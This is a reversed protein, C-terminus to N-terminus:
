ECGWFLRSRLPRWRYGQVLPAVSGFATANDFNDITTLVGSPTLRYVTAGVFNAGETTGYFNGDSAQIPAAEPFLGDSAGVFEHLVSYLGSPSVKFLVGLGASPGAGDTNDFAFLDSEAGSTRLTFVTGFTSGTMTGYLKGDRGQAPTVGFPYQSNSNPAFSYVAKVTQAACPGALTLGVFTALLPLVSFKTLRKVCM